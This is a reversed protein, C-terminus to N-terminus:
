IYPSAAEYGEKCFTFNRKWGFWGIDEQRKLFISFVTAKEVSSNILNSDAKLM